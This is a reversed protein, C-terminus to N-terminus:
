IKRTKSKFWDAIVDIELHQTAVRLVFDEVEKNSAVLEFGNIEIFRAASAIATRKNGDSFVHNRAISDLYTAAKAHVGEFQEKGFVSTKPRECSSILLGTDRVGHLGGIENIILDHIVLIEEPLLYRM